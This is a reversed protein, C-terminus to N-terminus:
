CIDFCIQFSNQSRIEGVSSCQVLVASTMPEIVMCTLNTKELLFMMEFNQYVLEQDQLKNVVKIRMQEVQIITAFQKQAGRLKFFFISISYGDKITVSELQPM